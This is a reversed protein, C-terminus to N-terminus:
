REYINNPSTRHFYGKTGTIDIIRDYAVQVEMTNLYLTDGIAVDWIGVDQSLRKGYPGITDGVVQLVSLYRDSDEYYSPDVTFTITEVPVTGNKAWGLAGPKLATLTWSGRYVYQVDRYRYYDVTYSSSYVFEDNATFAIDAEVNDDPLDESVVLEFSDPNRGNDYPMGIMLGKNEGPPMKGPAQGTIVYFNKHRLWWYVHEMYYATGYVPYRALWAGFVQNKDILTMMDSMIYHRHSTDQDWESKDIIFTTDTQTTDTPNPNILQKDTGNEKKCAGFVLLATM